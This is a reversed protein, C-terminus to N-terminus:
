EYETHLLYCYMARPERSQIQRLPPRFAGSETPTATYGGSGSHGQHGHARAAMTHGRNREVM